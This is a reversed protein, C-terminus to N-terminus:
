RRPVRRTPPRGAPPPRAQSRDPATMETGFNEMLKQDLGDSHYAKDGILREPVAPVIREEPTQEVVTM